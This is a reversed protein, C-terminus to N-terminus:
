CFVFVRTYSLLNRAWSENEAQDTEAVSQTRAGLRTPRGQSVVDLATAHQHRTADEGDNCRQSM